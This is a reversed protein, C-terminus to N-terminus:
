LILIEVQQFLRRHFSYRDSYGEYMENSNVETLLSSYINEVQQFQHRHFSYCDSYGGHMENSNIKTVPKIQNLFWVMQLMEIIMWKVEGYEM